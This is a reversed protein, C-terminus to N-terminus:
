SINSRGTRKLFSSSLPEGAGFHLSLFAVTKKFRQSINWCWSAYFRDSNRSFKQGQKESKKRTALRWGSSERSPVSVGTSVAEKKRQLPLSLFQKQCSFDQLLNWSDFVCHRFAIGPDVFIRGLVQLLQQVEHQCFLSVASASGRWVTSKCVCCPWSELPAM